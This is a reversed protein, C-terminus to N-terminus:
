QSPAIFSQVFELPEKVPSCTTKLHAEIQDSSQGLASIQHLEVLHGIACHFRERVNIAHGAM